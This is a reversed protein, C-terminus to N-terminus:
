YYNSVRFKYYAKCPTDYREAIYKLGWEIQTIPNTRWDMGIIEMKTAPLAQAIGHAGSIKNRAQYRWNSEKTWLKNLCNYQKESWLYKNLVQEKAYARAGDPIKALEVQEAALAILAMEQSGVVKIQDLNIVSPDTNQEPSATSPSTAAGSVPNTTPQPFTSGVSLSVWIEGTDAYTPQTSGIMFAVIASILALLRRRGSLRSIMKAGLLRRLKTRAVGSIERNTKLIYGREEYCGRGIPYGDLCEARDSRALVKLVREFRKSSM